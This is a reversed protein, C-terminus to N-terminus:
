SYGPLLPFASYFTQASTMCFMFLFRHRDCVNWAVLAKRSHVPLYRTVRFIRKSGRSLINAARIPCLDKFLVCCLSINAIFPQPTAYCCISSRQEKASFRLGALAHFGVPLGRNGTKM